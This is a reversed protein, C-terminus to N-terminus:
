ASAATTPLSLTGVREFRAQRRPIVRAIQIRAWLRLGVPEPGAEVIEPAFHGKRWYQRRRGSKAYTGRGQLPM